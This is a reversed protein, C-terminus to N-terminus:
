GFGTTYEISPDPNLYCNLIVGKLTGGKCKLIANIKDCEVGFGMIEEYILKPDMESCHIIKAMNNGMYLPYAM